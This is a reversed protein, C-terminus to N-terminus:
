HLKNTFVLSVPTKVWPWMRDMTPRLIQPVVPQGCQYDPWGLLFRCCFSRSVCGWWVEKPGLVVTMCIRLDLPILSGSNRVGYDPVEQVAPHVEPYTVPDSCAHSRIEYPRLPLSSNWTRLFIRNKVKKNRKKTTWKIVTEISAVCYTVQSFIIQGRSILTM